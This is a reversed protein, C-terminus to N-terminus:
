TFLYRLVYFATPRRLLGVSLYKLFITLALIIGFKGTVDFSMVLEWRIKPGSRVPIIPPPTLKLGSMTSVYQTAM